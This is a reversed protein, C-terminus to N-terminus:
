KLFSLYSERGCIGDAVCGHSKQWAKMKSEAGTWFVGDVSAGIIKQVVRTIVPQTYKIGCLPLKIVASETLSGNYSDCILANGNKDRIGLQNCLKQMALVNTNGTSKAAVPTNMTSILVDLKNFTASGALGDQALNYKRQFELLFSYSANGFDGDCAINTGMVKNLKQQLQLCKSGVFAKGKEIPSQVPAVYVPIPQAIIPAPTTSIPTATITNEGINHGVLGEAIAKGIRDAGVRNYIDVDSKTDLFFPEVIIAPADANNLEYLGTREKVGRDNFGLAVIRACVREAIVKGKTSVYCVECGFGGGANVHNSDFIDVKANNAKDVGYALDVRSECRGPTCNVTSNGDIKLYKDVAADILRDVVVENVFGNAGQAQENHGGRHGIKM